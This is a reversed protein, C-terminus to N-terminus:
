AGGSSWVALLASKGVGAIGHLFVVRPGDDLLSSLADLETTRGVFNESVGQAVLDKVLRVM